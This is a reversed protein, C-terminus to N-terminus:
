ATKKKFLLINGSDVYNIVDRVTYGLDGAFAFAALWRRLLLFFSVRCFISNAREFAKSSVQVAFCFGSSNVRQNASKFFDGAHNLNKWAAYFCGM